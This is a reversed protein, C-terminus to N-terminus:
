EVAEEDYFLYHVGTQCELYKLSAITRKRSRRLKTMLNPNADKKRSVTENACNVYEALTALLEKVDSDTWGIEDVCKCALAKTDHDKFPRNMVVDECDLLYDYMMHHVNNYVSKSVHSRIEALKRNVADELCGLVMILEGDTKIVNTQLSVDKQQLMEM